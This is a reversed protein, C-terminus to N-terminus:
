LVHSIILKVYFLLLNLINPGVYLSSNSEGSPGYQIDSIWPQKSYMILFYSVIASSGGM